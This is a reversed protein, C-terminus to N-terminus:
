KYLNQMIFVFSVNKHHIGRTFLKSAKPSGSLEDALDDMILLTSEGSKFFENDKFVRDMGKIFEVNEMKDFESQWEGYCYIVRRIEENVMESRNEILKKVRIAKGSM